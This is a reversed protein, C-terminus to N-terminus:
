CTSKSRRCVAKHISFKRLISSHECRVPPDFNRSRYEGWILVEFPLRRSPIALCEKEGDARSLSAHEHEYEKRQAHWSSVGTQGMEYGSSVGHRHDSLAIAKHPDVNSLTM